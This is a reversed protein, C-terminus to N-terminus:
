FTWIRFKILNKWAAEKMGRLRLMAREWAPVTTERAAMWFVEKYELVPHYKKWNGYL